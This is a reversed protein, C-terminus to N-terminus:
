RPSQCEYVVLESRPGELLADCAAGRLTIWSQNKDFEWGQPNGRAVLADSWFLAVHNPDDIPDKVELQCADRAASGIITMIATKLTEPSTASYYFPDRGTDADGSLAINRLCDHEPVNGLVVVLTKVDIARLNGATTSATCGSSGGSCTTPEGDTVLLVYQSHNTAGRQVYAEKCTDLAAKTPREFSSVCGPMPFDCRRAESVFSVPDGFFGDVEGSCCGQTDTCGFRTGPFEVFGFQVLTQYREAAAGLAELAAEVESISTAGFPASMSASRDLAVIVETKRPDVRVNVKRGELCFNAANSPGGDGNRDFVVTQRCAGLALALYCCAIRVRGNM